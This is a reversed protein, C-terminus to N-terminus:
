VRWNLKRLVRNGVADYAYPGRKKDTAAYVTISDADHSNVDEIRKQFRALGNPTQRHRRWCRSLRRRRRTSRNASASLPRQTAEVSSNTTGFRHYRFSDNDLPNRDIDLATFHKIISKVDRFYGNCLYLPQLHSSEIDEHSTLLLIM